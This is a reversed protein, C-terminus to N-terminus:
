HTLIKIPDFAVVYIVRKKIEKTNEIKYSFFGWFKCSMFPRWSSKEVLWPVAWWKFNWLQPIIPQLILMLWFKNQVASESQQVSTHLSSIRLMTKIRNFSMEVGWIKRGWAEVGFKKVIFKQVMPNFVCRSFKMTSFDPTSFNMTLFDTTSLDPTLAQPQFTWPQSTKWGDLSIQGSVLSGRM